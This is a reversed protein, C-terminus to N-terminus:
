SALEFVHHDAFRNVYFGHYIDLTNHCNVFPPVREKSFIPLIHMSQIISNVHIVAFHHSGDNLFSPSVMWMGTLEDPVDAIHDFWHVLTCAFSQGDTHTFSIFLYIRAMDMGLMGEQTSDTSVFICDYRAPGQGWSPMAHIHEQRMGGIGSLNSPSVFTATASRFVKIHGTFPPLRSTTPPSEPNLQAFLFQSILKLLSPIGLEVALAFSTKARQGTNPPGTFAQHSSPLMGRAKFNARAASLQALCQNTCLIATIHKSETISMCLGNPAGFLRILAEYHVLSHQRPLSFGEPCIDLDRFVERYQHFQELAVNLEMLIDGTIVNQCVIYCFELFVHVTHVINDPVHGEIAPLYVKMLAKSNDSTWQSFGQGDPFMHLGPFPPVAAIRHNIDALHEKVGPKGYTVELYKGVWKVLHDKFTGKVLQHLINPALLQCIDTHPFDDTSPVINADVGRKDWVVCLSLENLDNPLAMCRGCWNQVIGSILVQKPYDTIYPGLSFIIRSFHQDPCKMVQPATMGPKLSSLIRSMAVHFLQKKFHRFLPDDAYKKAVKPIALFALIKVGNHHACQVNNQINGISLYVPWYDNQGTAVLVTTKDSLRFSDWKVNGLPTADITKHLEKHDTFHPLSDGVDLVLAGM